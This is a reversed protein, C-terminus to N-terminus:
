AITAGAHPRTHKRVAGPSSARRARRCHTRPDGVLRGTYRISPYVSSSAVSYGIAMNGNHDLAVSGMWRHETDAPAYTGQQYVSWAGGSKRIEYWRVGARASGADVTHNTVLTEYSGFNRYQLRYMLRDGIADLGQSTDPQPVCNQTSPCVPTLSAVPLVVNPQGSLGFTSNAPTTWNVRFEWLRMADDPPISSSDDVEAFYNPSGAPPPNDGDLDAPLMGGFDSNVSYLDFYVFTAPNGNLMTARDFAFAGAGGWSSGGTFQNVSMYYADPWVGFKPYDNM